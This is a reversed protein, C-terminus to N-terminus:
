VIQSFSSILNTYNEETWAEFSHYITDDGNKRLFYSMLEGGMEMRLMGKDTQLKVGVAGTEVPYIRMDGDLVGQPLMAILQRCHSIADPAIAPADEYDWGEELDAIEQLTTEYKEYNNAVVIDVCDLMADLNEDQAMIPSVPCSFLAALLMAKIGDKFKDAFRIIMDKIDEWMESLSTSIDNEQEFLFVEEM